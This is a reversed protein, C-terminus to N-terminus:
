YCLVGKWNSKKTSVISYNTYTDPSLGRDVALRELVVKQMPNMDIESIKRMFASIGHLSIVFKVASLNHEVHKEISEASQEPKYAPISIFRQSFTSKIFDYWKKNKEWRTTTSDNKNVRRVDCIDLFCDGFVAIESEPNEIIHNFFGKASNAHMEIEYRIADTEGNSEVSKDYIRLMKKRRDGLYFTQGKGDGSHVMKVTRMKTVLAGALFKKYYYSPMYKKTYDDMCIDIRSPSCGRDSLLKFMDRVTKVGFLNFAYDLGHSPIEVNVGKSNADDDFRITLMDNLSLGHSFNRGGVVVMSVKFQELEPFVSWFDHLLDFSSNNKYTFSLWDLSFNSVKM